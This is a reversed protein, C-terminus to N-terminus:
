LVKDAKGNTLFHENSLFYLGQVLNGHFYALAAM